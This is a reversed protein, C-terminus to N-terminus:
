ADFGNPETRAEPKSRRIENGEEINGLMVTQTFVTPRSRIYMIGRAEPSPAHGIKAHTCKGKVKRCPIAQRDADTPRIIQRPRLKDEVHQLIALYVSFPVSLNGKIAASIPIDLGGKAGAGRDYPSFHGYRPRIQLKLPQSCMVQMWPSRVIGFEPCELYSQTVDRYFMVHVEACKSFPADFAPLRRCRYFVVLFTPLCRRLYAKQIMNCTRILYQAIEMWIASDLTVFQFPPCPMCTNCRQSLCPPLSSLSSQPLPPSQQPFEQIKFVPIATLRGGKEVHRCTPTIKNIDADRLDALWGALKM